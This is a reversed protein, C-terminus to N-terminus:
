LKDVHVFRVNQSRAAGQDGPSNGIFITEEPDLKFKKMIMVMGEPEPKIRSVDDRTVILDIKDIVGIKKLAGRISSKSNSSYVIVLKGQDKAKKLISMSTENISLNKIGEREYSDMVKSAEKFADKGLKDAISNFLRSFSAPSIEKGYRMKIFESVAKKAEGWDVDLSLLTEDMDFVFARYKNLDM